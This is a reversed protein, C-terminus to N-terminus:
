AHVRHIVRLRVGVVRGPLTLVPLRRFGVFRLTERAVVLPKFTYPAMLIHCGTVVAYRPHLLVVTKFAPPVTHRAGRAMFLVKATRAMLLRHRSAVGTSTEACAARCPEMALCAALKRVPVPLVSRRLVTYYAM